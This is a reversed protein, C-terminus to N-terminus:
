INSLNSIVQNALSLDYTITKNLDGEFIDEYDADNRDDRLRDLHSQIRKSVKDNKKKLIDQVEQHAKSTPYISYGKQNLLNRTSCFAAYYARSIASRLKAEQCPVLTQGALNQSLVLYDAWQFSM